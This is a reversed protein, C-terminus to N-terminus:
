NTPDSIDKLKFKIKSNPTKQAMVNIAEDTLQLIRPYGGSTQCDRMLVILKGSPTLQVTGPLVPNSLIPKLDNKIKPEILYAIRNSSNLVKFERNFLLQLQHKHLQKFEQGAYVEIFENTLIQCDVKVKVGQPYSHKGENLLLFQNKKIRFDPTINRSMSRSKLFPETNIGGSIALYSYNGIINYGVSLVDGSKIKFPNNIPVETRNNVLPSILAGSFCIFTPKHFKLIPGLSTCELLPTNPPNNLLLNAMQASQHDMYGSKPVGNSYFGLRGIDQISTYIGPNLVEIM